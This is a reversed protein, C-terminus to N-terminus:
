KVNKILEKTKNTKEWSLNLEDRGFHGFVSVQKYIPNM